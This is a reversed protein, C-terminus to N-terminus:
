VSRVVLTLGGSAMDQLQVFSWGLMSQMLGKKCLPRCISLERESLNETFIFHIHTEENLCAHPEVALYEPASGM